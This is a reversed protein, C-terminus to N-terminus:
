DYGNLKSVTPGGHRPHSHAFPPHAGNHPPGHLISYPPQLLVHEHAEHAKLWVVFGCNGTYASPSQWAASTWATARHFSTALRCQFPLAMFTAISPCPTGPGVATAVGGGSAGINVQFCGCVGGDIYCILVSVGVWVRSCRVRVTALMRWSATPRVGKLPRAQIKLLRSQM